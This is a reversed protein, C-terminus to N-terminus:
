MKSTIESLHSACGVLAAFDDNIATVGFRDMLGSLRGKSRFAEGFGLNALHPAFARAVGGTLYIGGFPLHVLALNGAITGLLRAFTRMAQAARPDSGNEFQAIIGAGPLIRSEGDEQGLWTYISELGRGSLAEEVDPFGRTEELFRFLRLDAESQAPLSAHGAESPTVLRGTGTCYVPAVNFGTGIGIVLRTAAPELSQAPIIELLNSAPVHGLSHGQAQLDNLLAVTEAQSAHAITDRDIRWDLNTLEASGDSIPGAVALCAGACDVGGHEDLFRRLVAELSSHEQNQYRRVTETLLRSGDALAVRTNTGGTDAVLSFANAPHVNSM